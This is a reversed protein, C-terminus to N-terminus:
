STLEALSRRATDPDVTEGPVGTFPEAMWLPQNLYRNLSAADRLLAVTRRAAELAHPELAGDDVLSSRSALLDIAPTIGAVYPAIGFAMTADADALPPVADGDRPHPAVRVVTVSGDRVAGALARLGDGAVLAVAADVVVLVDSGDAALAAAVRGAGEVAAAVEASSQAQVVISADPMGDPDVLRSLDVIPDAEDATTVAVLAGGRGLRLNHAIECLLVLQGTGVPGVIDVVGGRRWPVVADIVKLGTALSESPASPLVATRADDSLGLAALDGATVTTGFLHTLDTMTAGQTPTPVPPHRRVPTPPTAPRDLYAALQPRLRRRADHLRKRVAGPTISLLDALEADTWEERYRLLLLRRDADPAVALARRVMAVDHNRDLAAEPGAEGSPFHAAMDLPLSPRLRRRHREAHKRVIFRIWHEVTVPGRLRGATDLLEIMSEQVVDDAAGAEDVLRVAHRQAVPTALAVLHPRAAEDGSAVAGLAEVLRSDTM